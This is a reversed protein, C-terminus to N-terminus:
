GNLANNNNSALNNYVDDMLHYYGNVSNILDQLSQTIDNPTVVGSELNIATIMRNYSDIDLLGVLSSIPMTYLSGMIAIIDCLGLGSWEGMIIETTQLATNAVGLVYNRTKNLKDVQKTVNDGLSTSTDSNFTLDFFKNGGDFAFGGLDPIGAAESSNTQFTNSSQILTLNTLSQDAVTILTNSFTQSIILGDVDSGGEPGQTSPLPLWYYLAQALSMEKRAKILELCMAEIMYLFNEFQSTYGDVNYINNVM